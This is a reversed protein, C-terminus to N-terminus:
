RSVAGLSSWTRAFSTRPSTSAVAEADSVTDVDRLVVASGVRAGTAELAALTDDYTTPTSMPVGRLAAAVAPDGLGLVWWGGDEAPGLVADHDALGRACELLLDATVQPTDMGVQLVPGPVEGIAHALREGLDGLIQPRIQWGEVLDLLLDGDIAERLDGAITLHCSAPGVAERCAALTDALSAAAIAAAETMGIEAGLRTKVLGAVPAKAVVLLQLGSM